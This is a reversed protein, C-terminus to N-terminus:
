GRIAIIPLNRLDVGVGRLIKKNAGDVNLNQVTANALLKKSALEIVKSRSLRVVQGGHNKAEFGVNRRGNMIRATLYWQNFINSVNKKPAVNTVKDVDRIDNKNEDYIPVKSVSFGNIGRVIVKDKYLQGVCNAILGKGLLYFFQEKTVKKTKRNDSRMIHYATVETGKMYRGVLVFKVKMFIGGGRGWQM